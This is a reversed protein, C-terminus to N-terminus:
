SSILPSASPPPHAETSERRLRQKASFRMAVLLNYLTDLLRERTAADFHPLEHLLERLRPDLEANNAEGTEPYWWGAIEALQNPSLGFVSGIRTIEEMSIREPVNRELLSLTNQSKIGAKKCVEDQSLGARVRRNFLEQALRSSYPV